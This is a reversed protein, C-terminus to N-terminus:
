YNYRAKDEDYLARIKVEMDSPEENRLLAQCQYYFTCLVDADARRSVVAREIDLALGAQRAMVDIDDFAHDLLHADLDLTHRGRPGVQHFVNLCSFKFQSDAANGSIHPPNAVDFRKWAIRRQTLRSQDTSSFLGLVHRKFVQVLGFYPADLIKPFRVFGKHQFIQFRCLDARVFFIYFDGTQNGFVFAANHDSFGAFGQVVAPRNANTHRKCRHAKSVLSDAPDGDALRCFKVQM